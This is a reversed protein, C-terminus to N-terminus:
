LYYPKIGELVLDYATQVDDVIQFLELDGPSIVGWEAYKEFNILGDWFDKGYLVIPIKKGLKQTQILTLTEFLEDMTGFGGPFVILAKAHYLFYFKRVFFYHFEFSLEPSAFENVGQEFPLSIGLGISKGGAEHAGKNAAEMMGPGGGSCVLFQQDADRIKLSWETLMKSLEVADGYYKSLRVVQEAKRVKDVQEPTRETETPFDELLHELEKKAVEPDKSRASGFFVLTHNVENELLRHEPEILECQVRIARAEPSNLFHENRYAKPPENSM